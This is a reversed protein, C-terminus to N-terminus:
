LSIITFNISAFVESYKVFYLLNQIAEGYYVSVARRMFTLQTTCQEILGYSIFDGGLTFLLIPFLFEQWNQYHM